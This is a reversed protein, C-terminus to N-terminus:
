RLTNLIYNLRRNYEAVRDASQLIAVAMGSSNPYKGPNEVLTDNGDSARYFETRKVLIDLLEGTETLVKNLVDTADIASFPRSVEEDDEFDRPFNPSKAGESFARLSDLRDPGSM